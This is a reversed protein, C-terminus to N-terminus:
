VTVGSESNTPSVSGERRFPFRSILSGLRASIQSNNQVLMNKLSGSRKRGEGFRPSKRSPSRHMALHREIAEGLLQADFTSESKIIDSENDNNTPINEIHHEDDSSGKDEDVNEEEEIVFEDVLQSKEVLHNGNNDKPLMPELEEANANCKTLRSTLAKPSLHVIRNSNMSTNNVNNKHLMLPSLRLFERKSESLHAPSNPDSACQRTPFKIVRDRSGRREQVVSISVNEKENSSEEKESLRNDLHIETEVPAEPTSELQIVMTNNRKRGFRHRKSDTLIQKFDENSCIIGAPKNDDVPSSSGSQKMVSRIINTDIASESHSRLMKKKPHPGMKQHKSRRSENSSKPSPPKIDVDAVSSSRTMKRDQHMTSTLDGLLVGSDSLQHFLWRKRFWAIPRTLSFSRTLSPSRSRAQECESRQFHYQPLNSVSIRKRSSADASREGLDIDLSRSRPAPNKYPEDVHKSKGIESLSRRLNAQKGSHTTCAFSVARDPSGSVRRQRMIIPQRRGRCTVKQKVDSQKALTTTDTSRTDASLVTKFTEEKRTVTQMNNTSDPNM